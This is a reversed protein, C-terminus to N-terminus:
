FKGGFCADLVDYYVTLEEGKKIKRATVFHSVFDTNRNIIAKVNPKKSHNLYFSIDISNLGGACIWYGGDEDAAFFGQVMEKTEQDIGKLESIKLKAWQRKPTGKFLETGQPIDKIAVVGIGNIKSVKLRCYNNKLSELIQNKLRAM